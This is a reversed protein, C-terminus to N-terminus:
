FSILDLEILPVNTQAEVYGHLHEMWADFAEQSMRPETTFIQFRSRSWVWRVVTQESALEYVQIRSAGKLLQLGQYVSFLRADQWSMQSDAGGFRSTLGDPTVEIRRENAKEVVPTLFMSMLLGALLSIILTIFLRNGALGFLIACFLFWFVFSEIFILPVLMIRRTHIRLSAPQPLEKFPTPQIRARFREPQQLAEPRLQGIRKWYSRSIRIIGLFILTLVLLLIGLILLFNAFGGSFM